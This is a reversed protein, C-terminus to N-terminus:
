EMMPEKMIYGAKIYPHIKEIFEDQGVVTYPERNWGLKDFHRNMKNIDNALITKESQLTYVVRCVEKRASNVIYGYVNRKYM